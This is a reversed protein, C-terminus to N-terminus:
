GSSTTHFVKTEEESSDESVPTLPKNSKWTKLSFGGKMLIKDLDEAVKRTEQVTDESHCIDDMYVDEKLVKAAEPYFEEGEEASKRLAIQAM